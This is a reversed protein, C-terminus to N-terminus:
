DRDGGTKKELLDILERKKAILTDIRTTERDLFHAILKQEELSPLSVVLNCIQNPNARPMKVGYTMSDIFKIFGDSLLLYFLYKEDVLKNLPRLV